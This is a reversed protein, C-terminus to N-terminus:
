KQNQAKEIRAWTDRLSVTRNFVLHDPKSDVSDVCFYGTRLFQFRDGGKVSALSPELFGKLVELSNPNLNSLFDDGEEVQDHNAELFLHDYLRIEAPLAHKASLWHLTGKVKRGDSTQGSKTEPDYSCRLELIKGSKQDRVVEECKIIYAHKLRVERGPALRFYKRPPDERFDDCDIYIESSFPIQRTGMEPDEPNNVAELQEVQDPPYNLIVVKLPKLVAMVRPARKNLDERLCHEFLSLEVVSNSKAVGIRECFDRISEPTFGRRRIASITPMRPDDWGSVQGEEVLRLLKRKSLVTNTLELRAFEIQRSEFIGLNEIFWDYLPRHDEFELTCLSHTIGEISDSQGHAWDYMPYICWKDGTRHHPAHLIRYMVPDRMNLNASNMDIKARLVKEGNKFEGARMREFLDLNKEVSRNRYPSEKGPKTLTGRHERIEDATLDDVYAKGDTVLKVAYEYLQDFYDSAYYLRDEWDFGLWRVDEVMSDIYEQEEKIPNTDDFRLNCLGGFEQAIGFNLCISKAHGIHLYGNPEPPFRTHVRGGHKGQSVDETIINRIFNPPVNVKKENNKEMV